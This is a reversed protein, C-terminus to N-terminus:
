LYNRKKLIVSKQEIGKGFNIRGTQASDSKALKRASEIISSVQLLKDSYIFIFREFVPADDLEYSRKLLNEPKNSLFPTDAESYPYHLTVCGRGDFSIIVGYSMGKANYGIQLFDGKSVNDLDSLREHGARTKRYISFSAGDGKIRETDMYHDFPTLLLFSLIVLLAPVGTLILEKFNWGAFISERSHNKVKEAIHKTIIHIPYDSLIEENSEKLQKLYERLSENEECAKRVLESKETSLENLLYRELMIKSFPIEEKLQM